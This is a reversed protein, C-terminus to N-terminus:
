LQTNKAANDGIVQLMRLVEGFVQVQATESGNITDTLAETRQALAQLKDSEVQQKEAEFTIPAAILGGASNSAASFAMSYNAYETAQSHLKTAAQRYKDIDDLQARTLGNEDHGHTDLRSKPTERPRVTENQSRPDTDDSESVSTDRVSKRRTSVDSTSGESSETSTISSSRKNASALCGTEGQAGAHSVRSAASREWVERAADGHANVAASAPAVEPHPRLYDAEWDHELGSLDADDAESIEQKARKNQASSHEVTSPSRTKANRDAFALLSTEESVEAHSRKSAARSEQTAHAADSHADAAVHVSSTERRISVYEIEWDHELGSLDADDSESSREERARKSRTADSTNIDSHEASSASPAKVKRSAHEVALQTRESSSFHFEHPKDSSVNSPRKRAQDAEAAELKRKANGASPSEGTAAAVATANKQGVLESSVVPKAAQTSSPMNRIYEGELWSRGEQQLTAIKGEQVAQQVGKRGGNFATVLSAASGALDVGSQMMGSFLQLEAREELEEAAKRKLEAALAHGSAKLIAYMQALRSTTLLTEASARLALYKLEVESAYKILGLLDQPKFPVPQAMGPLLANQVPSPVQAVGTDRQEVATSGAAGAVTAVPTAPFAGAVTGLSGFPTSTIGPM